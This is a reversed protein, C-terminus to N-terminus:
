EHTNWFLRFFDCYSMDITISSIRSDARLRTFTYTFLSGRRMQDCPQSATARVSDGAWYDLYLFFYKSLISLQGCM